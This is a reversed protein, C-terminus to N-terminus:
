VKVIVLRGHHRYIYLKMQLEIFVIRYSFDRDETRSRATSSSRDTDYGHFCNNTQLPLLIDEALNSALISLLYAVGANLAEDCGKRGARDGM